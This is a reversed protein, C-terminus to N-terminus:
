FKSLRCLIVFNNILNDCQPTAAFDQYYLECICSELHPTVAFYTTERNCRTSFHHNLKTNGLNKCSRRLTIILWHSRLLLDLNLM